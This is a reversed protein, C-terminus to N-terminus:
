EAKGEQMAIEALSNKVDQIMRTDAPKLALVKQYAKKAEEMRGLGRYTQGQALILRAKLDEKDPVATLATECVKLADEARGTIQLIEIKGLYAETEYRPTDKYKEIMGDIAAM